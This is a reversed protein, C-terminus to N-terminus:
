PCRVTTTSTDSRAQRRTLGREQAYVAIQERLRSGCRATVAVQFRMDFEANAGAALTGAGCEIAVGDARCASSSLASQWALDRDFRDGATVLLAAASGTNTIRVRYALVDGPAVEAPASLTVGLVPEGLGGPAATPTPTAAQERAAAVGVVQAASLPGDGARLAAMVDAPSAGPHLALYLGAVGSALPTSMSTGTMVRYRNGVTTSLIRKGPAAVDVCEGWNSFSSREGDEDLAGVGLVMQPGGRDACVPYLNYRAADVGSNGAAAVVVVGAAFANEIAAKLAASPAGVISLNIIDAGERVAYEIGRIIWEERGVGSRNLVRVSMIKAGWDVGAVGVGNNSSAAALGAVHTGHDHAAAAPRNEVFDWGQLDDVLGNGDDDRGNGAVEDSNRWIKDRLDEHQLDVGGDIVAIVTNSSGTTKDWAAPAQIDALPAGALAWQDALRPDNPVLAQQYVQELRVSAVASNKELEAITQFASSAEVEIMRFRRLDAARRRKGDVVYERPAQSSIRRGPWSGAPDKLEVIVYATQGGAAGATAYPYSFIALLVAAILLVRGPLGAM